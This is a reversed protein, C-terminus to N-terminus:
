LILRGMNVIVLSTKLGVTELDLGSGVQKKVESLYRHNQRGRGGVRKKQLFSSQGVGRGRKQMSNSNPELYSLSISKKKEIQRLIVM